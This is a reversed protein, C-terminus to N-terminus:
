MTILARFRGITADVALAGDELSSSGRHTVSVNDSLLAYTDYGSIITGCVGVV